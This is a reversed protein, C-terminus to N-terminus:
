ESVAGGPSGYFMCDGFASVITSALSYKSVPAQYLQTRLTEVLVQCIYINTSEALWQVLCLNGLPPAPSLVCPASPAQRGMTPVAINVLWYGGSRGPVLSGALSYM